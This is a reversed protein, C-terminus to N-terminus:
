DHRRQFDNRTVKGDTETEKVLSLCCFRLGLFVHLLMMSLSIFHHRVIGLVIMQVDDVVLMWSSIKMMQVLVRVVVLLAVQEAMTPLMPCRFISDPDLVVVRLQQPVLLKVVPLVVLIVVPVLM